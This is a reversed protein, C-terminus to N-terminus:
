FSVEKSFVRDFWHPEDAITRYIEQWSYTRYVLGPLVGQNYPADMLLVPVGAASVEVSIKLTDEILVNLDNTLCAERKDHSGLLLIEDFPLSNKHLWDRTERGYKEDRASVIFIDHSKKIQNLYYSAGPLPPPSTMLFRGRDHLFGLLEEGTIGYTRCVDQLQIQQLSKNQKFYDNLEKVWLPLSDALVGDIDVGVRM